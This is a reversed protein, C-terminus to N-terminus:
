YHTNKYREKEPRVELIQLLDSMVNVIFGITGLSQILISTQVGYGAIVGLFAVQLCDTLPINRFCFFFCHLSASASSDIIMTVAADSCAQFVNLETFIPTM